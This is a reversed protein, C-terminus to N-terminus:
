WQVSEEMQLELLPFTEFMEYKNSSSTYLMLPGYYAWIETEDNKNEFCSVFYPDNKGGKKL